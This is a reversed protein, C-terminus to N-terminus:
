DKNHINPTINQSFKIKENFEEKQTPMQIERYPNIKLNIKEYKSLDKYEKKELEKNEMYLFYGLDKLDM